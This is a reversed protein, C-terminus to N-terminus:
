ARGSAEPAANEARDHGALTPTAAITPDPRAVIWNNPVGWRRKAAMISRERWSPMERYSVDADARLGFQTRCLRRNAALVEWGAAHLWQKHAQRNPTWWTPDGDAAIFAAPANPLRTSLRLSIVDVSLLAGPVSCSGPPRTPPTCRRATGARSGSNSCRM